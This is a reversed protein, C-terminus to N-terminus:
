IGLLKAKAATFEADSILGAQNMQGLRALQTLLDDAPAAAPAVPAAQAAAAAAAHQAVAQQAAADIAAQQQAAAQASAQQRNHVSGSVVTATGAIVATRAMTGFLGPRGMRRM